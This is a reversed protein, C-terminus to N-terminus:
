AAGREVDILHVFSGMVSGVRLGAGGLDRGGADWCGFLPSEEGIAVQRAYHFEHGRFGSGAPGLPNDALMEVRRYGLTLRPRVFSTELPLLGAMQHTRGHADELARGLAMYGGCEGYILGGGEAAQCLSDLFRQNSALRGAHLEPYGGSLYIADAAPDPAEDALPSFIM